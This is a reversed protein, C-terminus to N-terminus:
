GYAMPPTLEHHSRSSRLRVSISQCTSGMMAACPLGGTYWSGGCAGWTPRM